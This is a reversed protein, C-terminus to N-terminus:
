LFFEVYSGNVEGNKRKKRSIRGQGSSKLWDWVEHILEVTRKMQEVIANKCMAVAAVNLIWTEIKLNACCSLSNWREDKQRTHEIKKGGNSALAWLFTMFAVLAIWKTAMTM